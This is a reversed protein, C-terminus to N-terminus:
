RWGSAPRTAASTRMWAPLFNAVNRHEVMVGKPQGTSGSTYILYALNEAGAGGEPDTEPAAALRDDADILLLEAEHAPLEGALDSRTVIVPAASDAIYHAIREAPYAPDLPVYAGGAKLIGLAAVLMEPARALHLGVPVEPGVGMARLVHAARNAQANLEAYTLSRDEFILATAEPTRAAQAEFARHVTLDSDFAASTANWGEILQRREEKSLIPLQSLALTDTAGTAVAQALHELRAALAACDAQTLRAPDCILRAGGEPSLAVTAATGDILAAEPGTAIGLQPTATATIAPDRAFLDAAFGPHRAIAQLRAELAASAEALTPDADRAGFRLPVWGCVHGPAAAEAGAIAADRWALDVAPKGSLRLGLAAVCAILRTGALGAPLDLTRERAAGSEGTAGAMPLEAPVADRLSRTWYEEGPALRALAQSLAAAESPTPSALVAGPEAVSMPCVPAGRCGRLGELRVAGDAAAVSLGDADVALVTGPPADGAPTQPETRAVLLVRGGAEIRPCALPNRYAGHDLARVLAAIEGAPRTFDLRMAAPRDGRRYLRRRNIDQARREPPGTQLRDILATFSDIGAAFCRANLTLATEDPAIAFLRQEVIDGTDIGGDMIHWTVGHRTEGNLLAWVPTNLGAYEPLPGDHFNIAGRAALDIVAQPILTMNAVSFLWDFSVQALTAAFDSDKDECRLGNRAAWARVEASRTIVARIPLGRQLLIDGCQILLSESGVLVSSFRMM